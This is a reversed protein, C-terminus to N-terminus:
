SEIRHMYCLWDSAETERQFGARELACISANNDPRIWAAVQVGPWISNLEVLALRLMIAALGRERYPSAILYSLTASQEARELRVMGCSFGDVELLWILTNSDGLRATFWAQHEELTIPESQFSAQRVKPDNVWELLRATDDVDARRLHATAEAM